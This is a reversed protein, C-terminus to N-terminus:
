FVIKCGSMELASSLLPSFKHHLPLFYSRCSHIIIKEMFHMLVNLLLVFQLLHQPTVAFMAFHAHLTFTVSIYISVDLPTHPCFTLPWMSLSSPTSGRAAVTSCMKFYYMVSCSMISVTSSFVATVNQHLQLSVAPQQM